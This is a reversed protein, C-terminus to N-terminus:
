RAEGLRATQQRLFDMLRLCAPSLPQGVSKVIGVDMYTICDDITRRIVRQGGLAWPRYVLDSLITVGKGQAVLSRIAEFSNTRFHIDPHCGRSQWYDSIVDPYDDTVLLLFPAKEVDKLRLEPVSLLPHGIATWLRRPSRIWTEVELTSDHSINSTLLLCFDLDGQRLAQLLQSAPAEHFATELLPFRQAIDGWLNPLLYASLTEAIGIRVVGNIAEPQQHLDEVAARSDHLIKRAHNLFREGVPTLQIGKAHRIFLPANVAEELNRMSVTMSSQSIHCRSAAKSIQLTEALAIYFELQRLTFKM